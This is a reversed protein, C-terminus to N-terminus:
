RKLRQHWYKHAEDIPILALAIVLLIFWQELTVPQLHLITNLGPTYIAAIHISQAILMGALLFPNGFFNQRFLSQQESRSNLVHVNEFLVMLLLTINRATAEDMGMRLCLAFTTFAISGIVIASLGIRQLMISNFIPEDPARPPQKLENGEEPEFALSIDQIGNTVLNLWLLQIPFLPIPLAFIVSLIFLFIEAAGTSILLFVVKRINSYVIRGQLIGQVISSFNDDTIILESSERAVDTGRKGMAIGVHAHKLAPADNVGDGTVAVFEGSDILQQVILLKQAPKIRAFVSHERIIKALQEPDDKCTELDQGTIATTNLVESGASNPHPSIEGSDVTHVGTIGLEQGIALATKPHDGTIMIVRIQAQQCQKVAEYAEPRLPDILAALGLFNLQQLQEALPHDPDNSYKGALAIVRYNSAALTNVQQQITAASVEDLAGACLEMIREPSGKASIWHRQNITDFSASFANESEYGISALNTRFLEHGLGSKHGVMLLAVDVGDGQAIGQHRGNINENDHAHEDEETTITDFSLSAENACLATQILQQLAPHEHTDIACGKQLLEGRGDLGEGSISYDSGDPLLLRQATMENVTLTGTKDSAICTCSGLSEVAVLKRVIVNARAMRKMGIALAITIAAPLGEPIASVALAVGLLFVSGLEAGRMVTLGLLLAIIAVICYTIVKTFHEFRLLLPPKTRTGESVAVSIEGLETHIGTAIVEGEARGKSVLTGAFALDSRDDSHDLNKIVDASEGSLLSENVHLNRCETLKLDAPIKDGSTLQVCDGVVLDRANLKQLTGDRYVWSYYPVSLALAQASRDASYEQLTGIGANIFLVALIFSGNLTQGLAFSIITAVLLVYVFSNKFQRLFINALSDIHADPLQNHGQAELRKSAEQATLGIM